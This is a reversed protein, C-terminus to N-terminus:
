LIKFTKLVHEFDKKVHDNYSDIDTYVSIEWILGKYDFFISRYIVFEPDRPKKVVYADKPVPKTTYSLTVEHGEIGAIVVDHREEIKFDEQANGPARSIHDEVVTMVSPYGEATKQIYIDIENIFGKYFDETPIGNLGVTTYTYRPMFQSQIEYYAPYEFSFSPICKDPTIFTQYDDGGTYEMPKYTIM